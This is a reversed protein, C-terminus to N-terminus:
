PLPRTMAAAHVDAECQECLRATGPAVLGKADTIAVLKGSVDTTSTALGAALEAPSGRTGGAFAGEMEDLTM